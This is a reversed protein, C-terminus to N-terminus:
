KEDPRWRPDRIYLAEAKQKLHISLFVILVVVLGFRIALIMALVGAIVGIRSCGTRVTRLRANNQVLVVTIQIKNNLRVTYCSRTQVLIAKFIHPSSRPRSMTNSGALYSVVSRAKLTLGVLFIASISRHNIPLTKIISVASIRASENALKITLLRVSVDIYLKHLTSRVVSLPCNSLKNFQLFLVLQLWRKM